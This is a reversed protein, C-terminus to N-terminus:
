AGRRFFRGVFPAFPHPAVVPLSAYFSALDTFVPAGKPSDTHARVATQSSARAVASLTAVLAILVNTRKMM